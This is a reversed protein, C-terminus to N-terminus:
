KVSQASADTLTCSPRQLSARSEVALCGTHSELPRLTVARRRSSSSGNLHGQTAKEELDRAVKISSVTATHENWAHLYTTLGVHKGTLACSVPNVIIASLRMCRKPPILYTSEGSM